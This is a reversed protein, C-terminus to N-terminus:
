RCNVVKSSDCDYQLVDSTRQIELSKLKCQVIISYCVFFCLFDGVNQMSFTYSIVKSSEDRM